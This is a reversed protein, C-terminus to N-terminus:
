GRNFVYSFTLFISTQETKFNKLNTATVTDQMMRLGMRFNEKWGLDLAMEMKSADLKINDGITSAAFINKAISIQPIFIFNWMRFVREIGIQFWGINNEVVELGTAEDSLINVFYQNEIHLGFNLDFPLYETTALYLFHLNKIDPIRYEEKALRKLYMLSVVFDDGLDPSVELRVTGKAGYFYFNNQVNDLLYSTTSTRNLSVAEAIIRTGRPRSSKDFKRNDLAKSISGKYQEDFSQESDKKKTDTKLTESEHGGKGDAEPMRKEAIRKSRNGESGLAKQIKSKQKNLEVAKKAEAKALNKYEQEMAMALSKNKEVENIIAAIVNAVSDSGNLELLKDTKSSKLEEKDKESEGKIAKENEELYDQGYVLEYMSKRIQLLLFREQIDFAQTIRLPTNQSSTVMKITLNFIKGKKEIIMKLRRFTIRKSPNEEASFMLIFKKSKALISVGIKGAQLEIFSDSFGILEPPGVLIYREARESLDVSSDHEEASFTATSFLFMIILYKRM